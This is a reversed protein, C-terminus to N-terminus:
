LGKTTFVTQAELTKFWWKTPPKKNGLTRKSEFILMQAIPYPAV